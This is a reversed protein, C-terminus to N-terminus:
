CVWFRMNKVSWIEIAVLKRAQHGQTHHGQQAYIINSKLTAVHNKSGIYNKVALHDMGNAHSELQNLITDPVYEFVLVFKNNHRFADILSVINEHKLRKLVRIERLATKHIQQNEMSEKFQKIAVVQQTSILIAKYV